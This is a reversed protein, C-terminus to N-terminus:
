HGRAQARQSEAAAELILAVITDEPTRSKVLTASVRSDDDVSETATLVIVPCGTHLDLGELLDMGHGDPLQLDLLIVDFSQGVLYARAEGLTAAQTINLQGSMATAIFDRFGADDEVHLVRPLQAGNSANELQAPAADATLPLDIWFTSGAGEVSTYDLGGFMKDMMQKSIHLGLGTGGTERTASADAQSFPSFIRSRFSAPIGPGTDTISVRAMKGVRSLSLHVSGGAPSFKAANSMLNSLVQQLRAADFDCDMDVDPTDLVFTVDFQNAYSQNTDMALEIEELLKHTGIDFQLKESNMKELDLIDNILLILRESNKHAITLLRMIGAPIEAAMAGTVLGLSGRISTLPTRLEHSVNSIFESKIRDMEKRDQIDQIQAIFYDIRGDQGRAVSVSLLGWVAHGEKHLYRKELQYDAIEGSTLQSLLERDLGVDDPHTLERFNLKLFEEGSYGLFAFLAENVSIWEGQPDILAMGIPANDIASRLREESSRLAAEAEKLATIDTQTGVLRLAAGNEDRQTVTADSRLWIWNGSKKRIRYECESRPTTGAFCAADAEDVVALDDPHVRKRWEEQPNIADDVHFGLMEMWTDSVISKGAVLDVDFVGIRAGRLASSWREEADELAITIQRQRTVDRVIATYRMEGEETKWPNIQFELDLQKGDRTLGTAPKTRTTRTMLAGLLEAVSRAGELKLLDRISMSPIDQAEAGFIELAAENASLLRGHEDLLLIGVVATNFVARNEQERATIELTKQVVQHQITEERRAYSLLFVAFLGSVLLGALLVVMPENNKTEADFQATSSWVITWYQGMVPMTEKITYTPVGRAEDGSQSSYILRDENVVRGDYVQLELPDQQSSTLDTMFRAGIFPAYVWGRFAVRRQEVTRLPVSRQYLPKLLLFGARRVEDQVLFIRKTITSRGTQRATIAAERRNEEFAIDLGLAPLNPELPEIFRIVFHNDRPVETPHVALGQVGLARMRAYFDALEITPVDDIVGIGNIGPLTKGINLADVYARWDAATVVSSAMFLGAAGDLGQAYSDMRHLLAQKSDNALGHFAAHGRQYAAESTWMWGYFTMGLPVMLALISAARLGAANDRSWGAGWSRWPGLLALPLVVLIGILDGMWWTVWNTAVAEAPLLGAILLTGTGVSAAILSAIPGVVGAFVVVDRISKLITPVGFLRRAAFAAALAQLSSGSAIAVAVALARWDIGDGGLVAGVYANVVFSGLFVGVVLRPTFILLAAIAIGSAPWIITAYGPPVALRLGLVGTVVYLLAVGLSLGVLRLWSYEVPRTESVQAGARKSRLALIARVQNM